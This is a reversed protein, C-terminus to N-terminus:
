IASESEAPLSLVLTGDVLAARFELGSDIVATVDAHAATSVVGLREEDRFVGFRQPPRDTEITRLIVRGDSATETLEARVNSQEDSLLAGLLGGGRTRTFELLDLFDAPTGEFLARWRDIPLSQLWERLGDDFDEGQAVAAVRRAFARSRLGSSILEVAEASNVGYRVYLPLKECLKLEAGLESM